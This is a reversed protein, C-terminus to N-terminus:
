ASAPLRFAVRGGPGPDAWIIGGHAAIFGHAIALGLGTGGGGPDPRVRAADDRTFGDFAHQIFDNCFGPGDDTVTVEATEAGDVEVIVQGHRPSHRIANDVLNRIVRGLEPASGRARVHGDAMLVLEVGRASATPRLAELAEDALDSLDVVVTDLKLQGSQIRTLVFLDDVLSTLAAVDREMAALYRDPDDAVGDQMAEVGAQLAALPTRLDHGISTLFNRLAEADHRREEELAALRVVAGDLAAAVIGVEDARDVGTQAQLDGDGVRRAVVSIRRLDSTLPGVVSAAFLLSLILAFGIVIWLLHLDHTSIFMLGSAVTVAVAVVAVPVVALAVVTRVISRDNRAWRRLLWASGAALLGTFVFLGAMQLRSAMEPQMVFEAVLLGVLGAGTAAIGYRVARVPIRSGM